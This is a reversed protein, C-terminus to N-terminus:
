SHHFLGAIFRFLFRFLLRFIFFILNLILEFIGEIVVEFFFRGVHHYWRKKKKISMNM